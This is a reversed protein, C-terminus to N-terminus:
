AKSLRNAMVAVFFGLTFAGVFGESLAVMRIHPAPAFDGYGVTAFTIGSFYFCRWFDPPVQTGAMVVGNTFLYICAYLTVISLALAMVRFPRYGFGAAAWQLYLELRHVWPLKLEGARQMKICMQRYALERAEAFLGCQEYSAIARRYMRFAREIDYPPPPHILFDGVRQCAVAAMHWERAIEAIKSARIFHQVAEEENGSQAAEVAAEFAEEAQISDFQYADAEARDEEGGEEELPAFDAELLVEADEEESAADFVHSVSTEPEELDKSEPKELM